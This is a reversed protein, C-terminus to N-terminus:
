KIRINKIGIILLIASIMLYAFLISINHFILIGLLTDTIQYNSGSDVNIKIFYSIVLIIIIILGSYFRIKSAVGM